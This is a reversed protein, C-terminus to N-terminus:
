NKEQLLFGTTSYNTTSITFPAAFLLFGTYSASAPKGAHTQFPNWIL